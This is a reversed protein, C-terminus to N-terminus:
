LSMIRSRQGRHLAPAVATTLAVYTSCSATCSTDHLVISPMWSDRDNNVNVSSEYLDMMQAIASHEIVM